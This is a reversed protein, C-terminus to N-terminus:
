GFTRFYQQPDIRIESVFISCFHKLIEDGALHGYQDNFKKFHDVDITMLSLSRQHRNAREIERELIEFFHRRNSIGTLEDTLASIELQHLNTKISLALKNLCQALEGVENDFAINSKSDYNGATISKADTVLQLLPNIVCKKVYFLIFIGITTTLLILAFAYLMHLSQQQYIEENELVIRQEVLHIFKQIPKM